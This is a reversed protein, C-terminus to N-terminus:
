RILYFETQRPRIFEFGKETMVADDEAFFFVPQNNWEPVKLATNLEISTFSGLRLKEEGTAARHADIAAGLGHGHTGLPHSYVMAQINQKKMEAMTAAYVDPGTM